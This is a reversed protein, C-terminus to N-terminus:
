KRQHKMVLRRERLGDGHQWCGAGDGSIGAPGRVHGTVQFLAVGDGFGVAPAERGQGAHGPGSGLGPTCSGGVSGRGAGACGAGKGSMEAVLVPPSRKVPVIDCASILVLDHAM